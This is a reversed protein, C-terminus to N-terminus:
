YRWLSPWEIFSDAVACSGDGIASGVDRLFCAGLAHEREGIELV